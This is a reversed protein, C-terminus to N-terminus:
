YIVEKATVGFITQIISEYRKFTDPLFKEIRAFDEDTPIWNFKIYQNREPESNYYPIEIIGEEHFHIDSRNKLVELLKELDYHQNDTQGSMYDFYIAKPILSGDAKYCNHNGFDLYILETDSVENELLFTYPELIELDFLVKTDKLIGFPNNRVFEIIEKKYMSLELKYRSFEKKVPLVSNFENAQEINEVTSIGQNSSIITGNYILDEKFAVMEGTIPLWSIKREATFPISKTMTNTKTM